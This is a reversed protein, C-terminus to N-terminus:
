APHWAVLRGDKQMRFRRGRWEINNGTFALAWLAVGMLDKVLPLGLDSLPARRRTLRRQNSRATAIRVAWCVLFGAASLLTRDILLWFLPWLTGNSLISFFFPLPQCVRITRTWRLQHAWVEKWGMPHSRCEVVVPCLEIRGGAAAIKHGLQYDDALYELLSRFGGISKVQSGRTAMVAGLAFDMPKLSRSQLVQSWFDANAAVGELRM